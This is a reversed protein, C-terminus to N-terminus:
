DTGFHMELYLPYLGLKTYYLNQGITKSSLVSSIDKESKGRLLTRVVAYRYCAFKIVVSVLFMFIKLSRHKSHAPKLTNNEDLSTYTLKMRATPSARPNQSLQNFLRVSNGGARDYEHAFALVILELSVANQLLFDLLFLENIHGKFNNLKIIKLNRLNLVPPNKQVMDLELDPDSWSTPLEIFLTELQQLKYRMFLKYINLLDSSRLNEMCLQLEQLNKLSAGVIKGSGLILQLSSSCTTLVQLSDHKLLTVEWNNTIQEYERLTSMIICDSLFPVALTFKRPFKGLFHFSHLLPALIDIVEINPCHVITLKKIQSYSGIDEVYKLSMCERLELSQLKPCNYLVKVLMTDNLNIGQLQLHELCDFYGFQYRGTLTCFSLSLSTLSRNFQFVSEPLKFKKRGTRLKGTPKLSVIGQSFDLYLEEVGNEIAREIWNCVTEPNLTDPHFYLHFTEIKRNEHALMYNQIENVLEQQNAPNQYKRGFKLTTTHNFRQKWLIKWNKSLVGTRVAYRCPLLSLIQVRLVDPLATLRDEGHFARGLDQNTEM